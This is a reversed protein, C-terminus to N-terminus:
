RGGARELRRFRRRNRTGEAFARRGDPRRPRRPRDFAPHRPKRDARILRRRPARAPFFPTAGAGCIERRATCHDTRSMQRAARAATANAVWERFCEGSSFNKM